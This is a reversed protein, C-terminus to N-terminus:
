EYRRVDSSVARLQISLPPSVHPASISSDFANRAREHALFPFGGIIRVCLTEKEGADVLVLGSKVICRKGIHEHQPEIKEGIIDTRQAGPNSIQHYISKHKPSDVMKMVNIDSLAVLRPAM